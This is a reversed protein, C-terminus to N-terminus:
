FTDQRPTDGENESFFLTIFLRVLGNLFIKKRILWLGLIILLFVGAVIFAGASYSGIIDGILLVSGFALATMMIGGLSLFLFALLVRNLTVSLGEATRLKIEDIKLDVYEAASKGLDEAPKSFEKDM